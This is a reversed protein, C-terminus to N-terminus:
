NTNEPVKDATDDADDPKDADETNEAEGGNETLVKEGSADDSGGSDGLDFTEAAAGAVVIRPKKKSQKISAMASVQLVTLLISLALMSYSSLRTIFMRTYNRSSIDPSVILAQTLTLLAACVYSAVSNENEEDLLMALPIAFFMLLSTECFPSLGCLVGCILAVSHWEKKALFAGALMFLGFIGALVNFVLALIRGPIPTGSFVYIFDKAFNLQGLLALSNAKAESVLNSVFQAAGSIGGGVVFVSPVTLLTFIIGVELVERYRKKRLLTLCFLVPYLSFACAVGLAGAAVLRGAKKESGKEAYFLTVLAMTLVIDSGREFAFLMPASLFSMFIFGFRETPKGAKLARLSFFLLTLATIAYLIFPFYFQQYTKVATTFASSAPSKDLTSITKSPVLMLLARYVLIAFPPDVSGFSYPDKGSLIIKNFFEMLSSSRDPYLLGRMSYGGSALLVIFFSLAFVTMLFYCLQKYYTKKPDLKLLGNKM